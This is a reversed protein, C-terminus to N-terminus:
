FYVHLSTSNCMIFFNFYCIWITEMLGTIKISPLLHIFLYVSIFNESKKCVFFVFVTNVLDDNGLYIESTVM